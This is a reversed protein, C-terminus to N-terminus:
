RSPSLPQRKFRNYSWQYQAPCRKVCMEVDQNLASVAVELNDAAIGPLAPLFHLHFGQANPLREAYTFIVPAGTKGALRTVLVMTYAPVGFFPAFVGASSPVQDPLIGVVQGHHLAHYLARVGSQDTPVYRGGARARARRIWDNLGVLKPPRYLATLPYHTSAYLGALEWAGLHPTLLIVGQGQQFAQQLCDEGSVTRVLRLVREPPWLWLAGLESFTKCTEILSHRLLIEQDAASSQPFCARLNGRTLRTSRWNARRALFRGLLTAFAHTVRLPLLAFARLLGKILLTRILAM